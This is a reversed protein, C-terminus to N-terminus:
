NFNTLVIIWLNRKSSNLHMTLFFLSSYIHQHHSLFKYQHNQHLTKQRLLKKHKLIKNISVNNEQKSKAM